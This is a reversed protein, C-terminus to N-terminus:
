SKISQHNYEEDTAPPRRCERNYPHVSQGHASLGVNQSILEDVV